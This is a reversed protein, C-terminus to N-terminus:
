HSDAEIRPEVLKAVAIAADTPGLADAGRADLSRADQVFVGFSREATTRVYIANVQKAKVGLEPVDAVSHGYRQAENNVYEDFGATPFYELRAFSLTGTKNYQCGRLGNDQPQDLSLGAATSIETASAYKCGAIGVNYNACTVSGEVKFPKLAEDSTALVDKHVTGSFSYVGDAPGNISINTFKMSTDYNDGDPLRIQLMSKKQGRIDLVGLTIEAVYAGGGQGQWIITRDVKPSPNERCQSLTTAAGQGINVDKGDLSVTPAAHQDPAATPGAGTSGGHACGAIATAIALLASVKAKM